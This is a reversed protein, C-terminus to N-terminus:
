VSSPNTLSAIDLRSALKTIQKVADEIKTREAESQKGLSFVQPYGIALSEGNEAGRQKRDREKNSLEKM